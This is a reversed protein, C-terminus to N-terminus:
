MDNMKKFEFCSIFYGYYITQFFLVTRPFDHIKRYDDKTMVFHKLYFFYKDHHCNKQLFSYKGNFYVYSKIM